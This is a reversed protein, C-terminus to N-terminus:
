SQQFADVKRDKGTTRWWQQFASLLLNVKLELRSGCTSSEIGVGVSALVQLTDSVESRGPIQGDCLRNRAIVVRERSSSVDLHPVHEACQLAHGPEKHGVIAIASQHM